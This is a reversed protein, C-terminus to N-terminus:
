IREDFSKHEIVHDASWERIVPGDSMPPDVEVVYELWPGNRFHRVINATGDRFARTFQHGSHRVRTGDPLPIWNRHDGM